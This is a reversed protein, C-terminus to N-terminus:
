SIKMEFTLNNEYAIKNAIQKPTHQDLMFSERVYDLERVMIAMMIKREDHPNLAILHDVVAHLYAAFRMANLRADSLTIITATQM